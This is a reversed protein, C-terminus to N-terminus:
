RAQDFQRSVKDSCFLTANGCIGYFVAILVKFLEYDMFIFITPQRELIFFPRSVWAGLQMSSVM